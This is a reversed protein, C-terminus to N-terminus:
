GGPWTGLIKSAGRIVFPFFIRQLGTAFSISLLSVRDGTSGM